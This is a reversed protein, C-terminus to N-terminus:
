LNDRVYVIVCYASIYQKVATTNHALYFGNRTQKKLIAAQPNRM